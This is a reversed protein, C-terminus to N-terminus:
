HTLMTLSRQNGGIRAHAGITALVIFRQQEAGILQQGRNRPVFSLGASMYRPLNM